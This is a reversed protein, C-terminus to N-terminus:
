ESIRMNARAKYRRWFRFRTISTYYFIERLVPVRLLYHFVRYTIVMTLFSLFWGTLTVLLKIWRNDLPLTIVQAVTQWFYIVVVMNFLCMAGIVYGHATQIARKPCENMCRMCSECRYSWFPRGDVKLIAKVPCHNICLDCNDCNEGAYFSKAFIFRGVFYYGISIPAILLDQVIDRFATLAKKGELIKAAFTTTIRKCRAFMSKVVQEKLGPHVSIWNSPMDISRLGAIKYGKILLILAAMWLALGSLGPLFWRSLKMGARTNMLFVTNGRSRPFRAIFKIMVPPYNFGHTPSIFGIMSGPQPPMIHKRDTKGLDMIMTSINRRAAEECVWGAVARANGTGSFFYITLHEPIM